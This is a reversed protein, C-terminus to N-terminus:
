KFLNVNKFLTHRTTNVVSYLGLGLLFAFTMNLIVSGPDSGFIGGVVGKAQIDNWKIGVIITNMLFFLIILLTVSFYDLISICKNEENEAM